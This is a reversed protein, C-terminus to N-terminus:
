YRKRVIVDLVMRYKFKILQYSVYALDTFINFSSVLKMKSKNRGRKDFAAYM